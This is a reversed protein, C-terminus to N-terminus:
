RKEILKMDSGATLYAAKGSADDAIYFQDSNKLLFWSTAGFLLAGKWVADLEGLQTYGGLLNFNAYPAMPSKGAYEYLWMTIIGSMALRCHALERNRMETDYGGASAYGAIGLPDGLNGPEKSPDQKLWDIEFIGAILIIAGLGGGGLSTNLASLGGPVEEFGPWKAFTGFFYGTIALMSIRGHKLEAARYWDFTEKSKYAGQPNKFGERMLHLPDWYGVPDLVGVELTPDFGGTAPTSAIKTSEESETRIETARLKSRETPFKRRKGYVARGVMAGLAVSISACTVGSIGWREAPLGVPGKGAHSIDLRAHLSSPEVASTAPGPLTFAIM